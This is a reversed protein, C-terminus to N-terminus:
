KYILTYLAQSVKSFSTFAQQGKLNLEGNAGNVNIEEIPFSESASPDQHWGDDRARAVRLANHPMVRITITRNAPDLQYQTPNLEQWKQGGRTSLESVAVTAPTTPPAFTYPYNKVKYRVVIPEDSENVVVFDTMYSCATLCLVSTILLVIVLLRTM